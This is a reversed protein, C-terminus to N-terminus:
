QDIVYYVQECVSCIIVPEALHRDRRLSGRCGFRTCPFGVVFEAHSPAIAEPREGGDSPGVAGDLRSVTIRREAEVRTVYRVSDAISAAVVNM